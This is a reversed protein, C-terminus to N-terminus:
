WQAMCSGKDKNFSDMVNCGLTWGPNWARSKLLQLLCCVYGLFYTTIQGKDLICATLIIITLNQKVTKNGPKKKEGLHFYGIKRVSVLRGLM